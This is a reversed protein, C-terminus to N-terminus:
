LYIYSLNHETKLVKFFIRALITNEKAAWCTRIYTNFWRDLTEVRGKLDKGTASYSIRSDTTSRHLSVRAQEQDRSRLAEGGELDGCQTVTIVVQSSTVGYYRGFLLCTLCMLVCLTSSILLSCSTKWCHFVVWIISISDFEYVHNQSPWIFNSAKGAHLMYVLNLYPYVFNFKWTSLLLNCITDSHFDLNLSWFTKMKMNLAFHHVIRDPCAVTHM